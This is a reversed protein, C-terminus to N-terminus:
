KSWDCSTVSDDEIVRHLNTGDKNVIYLFWKKIGNVTYALFILKEGDPSWRPYIYPMNSTNNTIKQLSSGDSNIIFINDNPESSIERKSFAIKKGEPSWKPIAGSSDITMIIMLDPYRIIKTKSKPPHGVYDPEVYAIKKGDPSFDPSGGEGNIQLKERYSGDSDIIYLFIGYIGVELSPSYSFLIKSGDPHWSMQNGYGLLKRNSGDVNMVVMSSGATTSNEETNCVIQKADPSWRGDTHWYNGSTIQRIGSGDPNMMYLQPKGSRSSTFLIKNHYNNYNNPDTTDCSNFLLIISFFVILLKNVYVKKM